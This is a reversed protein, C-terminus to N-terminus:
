HRLNRQFKPPVQKKGLKCEPGKRKEKLKWRRPGSSAQHTISGGPLVNQVLEKEMKWLGRRIIGASTLYEIKGERLGPDGMTHSCKSKGEGRSEGFGGM